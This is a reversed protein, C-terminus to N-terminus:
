RWESEMKLECCAVFVEDRHLRPASETHVPHALFLGALLAAKDRGLGLFWGFLALLAACAKPLLVQPLM